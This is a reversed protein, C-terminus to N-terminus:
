QSKTLMGSVRDKLEKCATLYQEKAQAEEEDKEEGEEADDSGESKKKKQFVMLLSSSICWSVTSCTELCEM